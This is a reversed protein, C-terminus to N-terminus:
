VCLYLCLGVCQKDNVDGVFLCIILSLVLISKGHQMHM